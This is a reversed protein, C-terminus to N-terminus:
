DREGTMEERQRGPAAHASRPAQCLDLATSGLSWSVLNGSGAWPSWSELRPTWPDASPEGSPLLPPGGRGSTTGHRVWSPRCRYRPYSQHMRASPRRARQLQQHTSPISPLSHSRNPANKGLWKSVKGTLCCQSHCLSLTSILTGSPSIICRSALRWGSCLIAVTLHKKEYM